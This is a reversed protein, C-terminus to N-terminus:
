DIGFLELLYPLANKVALARHSLSNKESMSLEAMTKGISSVQFIPDYGFGHTGRETSIIEGLCIGEAFNLYGNPTAIALICRFLAKWPQHHHELQELLYIRRDKDTANTQPAYRASYLGPAGGLTEVELGTDDALSILGSMKAFSIAKKAANERYTTGNEDVILELGIELPSYLEISFVSLISRIEQQKGINNTAILLQNTKNRM